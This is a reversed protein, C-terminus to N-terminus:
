YRSKQLRKHLEKISMGEVEEEATEVYANGYKDVGARLNKHKVPDFPVGDISFKVSIM